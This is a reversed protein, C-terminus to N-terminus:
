SIHARLVWAMTEHMKLTEVLFDTTGVDNLVEVIQISNRLQQTIIEQDKLLEDLMDYANGNLHGTEKLQSKQLFIQMSGAAFMGLSRIREAVADIQVELQRYQEEFLLHLQKFHMGQVNWHYNRLKIYLVHEDALLGQLVAGIKLLSEQSLGINASSLNYQKLEATM